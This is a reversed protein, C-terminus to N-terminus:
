TLRVRVYGTTDQYFGNVPVGAAAAAADNAAAVLPGFQAMRLLNDLSVFYNRWAVEAMGTKQVVLPLNAAPLPVLLVSSAM